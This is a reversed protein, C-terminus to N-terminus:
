YNYHVYFNNETIGSFNSSFILNESCRLLKSFNIINKLRALGSFKNSSEFLIM